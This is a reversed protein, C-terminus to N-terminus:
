MPALAVTGCCILRPEFCRESLNTPRLRTVDQDLGLAGTMQPSVAISKASRSFVGGGESMLSTDYDEWSSRPLDYLRQREVFSAEPDPDPDVFVHRHDFAALLKTKDSRLLGNGFVDGSMDGVGVVTFPTHV